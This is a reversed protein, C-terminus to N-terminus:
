AERSDGRWPAELHHTLRRRHEQVGRVVRRPGSGRGLRDVLVEVEGAQDPHERRHGVLVDPPDQRRELWQEGLDHHGRRGRRSRHGNVLNRGERDIAPAPTRTVPETKVTASARV